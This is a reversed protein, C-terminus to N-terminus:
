GGVRGDLDARFLSLLLLRIFFIRRFFTRGFLKRFSIRTCYTNYTIYLYLM